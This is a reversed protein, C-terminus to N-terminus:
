FYNLCITLMKFNSIVIDKSSMIERDTMNDVVTWSTKLELAPLENQITVLDKLIPKTLSYMRADEKFPKLTPCKKRKPFVKFYNDYFIQVQDITLYEKSIDLKKNTSGTIVGVDYGRDRLIKEMKFVMKNTAFLVATIHDTKHRYEVWDAIHKLYDDKSELIMNHTALFRIYDTKAYTLRQIEQPTFDVYINHLTVTPILNQHDLDVLVEGVSNTMLFDNIGKVFPTASLGIINDTKFIIATKAYSEAAGSQHCEDYFVLGIRSYFEELEILNIRKLQSLLTQIKVVIIDNDLINNKEIKAIDSGQIIGIKDKSLGTFNSIEDVWQDELISNPVICLTKYGIISSLKISMFTKGVGPRAQLIGNIKGTKKFIDLFTDFVIQQEPRPEFKVDYTIKTYEQNNVQAQRKIIDDGIQHIALDEYNNQIFFKPLVVAHGLDLVSLDREEMPISKDYKNWFPPQQKIYEWEHKHIIDM